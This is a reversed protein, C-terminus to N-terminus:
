NKHRKLLLIGRIVIRSMTTVRAKLNPSKFMKQDLKWAWPGLYRAFYNQAHETYKFSTAIQRNM